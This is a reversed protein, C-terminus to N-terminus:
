AREFNLATQGSATKVGVIKAKFPLKGLLQARRLFMTLVMGTTAFEKVEGDPMIAATCIANPIRGTESLYWQWQVDKIVVTKGALGKSNEGELADFLDDLTEAREFREVFRRAMDQPAVTPLNRFLEPDYEAVGAPEPVVVEKTTM